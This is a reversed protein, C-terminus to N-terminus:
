GVDPNLGASYGVSHVGVLDVFEDLQEGDGLVEIVSNGSRWFPSCRCGREGEDAELCEGSGGGDVCVLTNTSPKTNKM